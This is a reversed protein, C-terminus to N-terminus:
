GTRENAREYLVTSNAKFAPISVDRLWSTSSPFGPLHGPLASLLSEWGRMEEHVELIHGDRSELALCILDVMYLDRKYARVLLVDNWSTFVRGTRNEITLWEVTVGLQTHSVDFVTTRRGETLSRARERVDRLWRGLAGFRVATPIMKMPSVGAIVQPVLRARAKGTV